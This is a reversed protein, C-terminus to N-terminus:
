LNSPPEIDLQIYEEIQGNKLIFYLSSDIVKVCKNTKDYDFLPPNISLKGQYEMINNLYHSIDRVRISNPESQQKKIEQFLEKNSIGKEINVYDVGLLYLVFNYGINLKDIYLGKPDALARLSLIHRDRYDILKINIAKRLHINNIYKKKWSKKRVNASLCSAKCLEQFVGISNFSSNLLEDKIEDININLYKCGKILVKELDKKYWPEVPIEIIRDILEGNYQTLRNNERWVGLIIFIINEEHFNRLDFAIQRQVDIDLYHFNELVIYEDKIKKKLLQSVDHALEIDYNFYEYKEITEKESTPEFIKLKKTRKTGRKNEKSILIEIGAERLIHKYISKTNDLNGCAIMFIKKKNIYKRYLYSKGQKSAGFIVIHKGSRLGDRFRDDIDSRVVYSKVIYKNNVGFIKDINHDFPFM